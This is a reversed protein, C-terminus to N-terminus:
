GKSPTTPRPPYATSITPTTSDCDCRCETTGDTTPTKTAEPTTSETAPAQPVTLTSGGCVGRVCVKDVACPMYDLAHKYLYKITTHTYCRQRGYKNSCYQKFIPYQCKVMCYKMRDSDMDATVNDKDPFVSKCFQNPAVEMGPYRGKNTHGTNSVRWCASGRLIVLNRIQRLSCTSFRHYKTGGDVYSMIHGESWLCALSGPDGPIWSKPQSEDHAAGLVHAAEHTLTHMGTYLGASDEGLAVFFQTCLGGVFGIGLVTMSKTGATDESYVEHGTILYVMDPYGYEYRRSDAYVRFEDLSSSSEMLIGSGNKYTSFQDKEVGVFLFKVRPESTDIYRMNVSNIQVCLYNILQLTTKFYKFHPYDSVMFIEITVEMPVSEAGYTRENVIWADKGSPAVEIDLMEKKEIKHIMHPILGQDSREMEPMPEIRHYPGVVGEVEVGSDRRTVHVTAFQKEDEHLNQEIDEGNFFHTVEHGDEHELVRFNRAAVSAKRLNLTLQDHLHLVMRGDASREELLRPYVLRPPQIGKSSIVLVSVIIIRIM